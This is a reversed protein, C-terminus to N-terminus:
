NICAPQQTWSNTNQSARRRIPACAKPSHHIPNMKYYKLRRSGSVNKMTAQTLYQMIYKTPQKRQWCRTKVPYSLRSASPIGKATTSCTLPPQEFIFRLQPKSSHSNQAIKKLQSRPRITLAVKNNEHRRPKSDAPNCLTFPAM